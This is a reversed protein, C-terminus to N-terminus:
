FFFISFYDLKKFDNQPFLNDTIKTEQICLFDPKERKLIELVYELRVRISNVNWSIVKM